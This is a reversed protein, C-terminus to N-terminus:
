NITLQRLLRNLGTEAEWVQENALRVAYEPRDKLNVSRDSIKLLLDYEGAPIGVLSLEQEFNTSQDPRCSRLDFSLSLEHTNGTTKNKLVLGVNKQHYMPAYGRNVINLGFLLKDNVVATSHAVSSELVLRYGLNRQFEEFCGSSRWLNITPQYWDLNLYTWKLLRMQNRGETCNPSFGGTPPCTEGGTPVFLADQSIYNKEAQVNNDTYTGYDTANSLFCDNHHGVRAVLDKQDANAQTVPQSTNFIRQKLIPTRLQVMLTSPVVELLKFLVRQSNEPSALGNSSNHWEGWAGVFGAQIFAIIDENDEFIPKLQDLHQEVIEIPADTGDMNDTYAFRLIIKLGENRVKEMDSQIAALKEASIPQDKYDQLYIVRLFISVNRDRLAALTTANLSNNDSLTSYTHMFGREPNSFIASSAQYNVTLRGDDTNEQGGGKSCCVALCGVLLWFCTM